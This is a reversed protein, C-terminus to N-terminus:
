NGVAVCRTPTLIFDMRVDTKGAPIEDAIQEDFAIAIKKGPFNELLRDYFGKGRGLRNGRLDFAIGPVLILDLDKLPIEICSAAPERIGFQGSLIEVHLNKIHRSKYIRDDLDFCPLAIIKDEAIASELLPWLDVEDPLPAFFLISAASRFFSQNKLKTCLEKSDSERREPPVAKAKASIQKRLASKQENLSM